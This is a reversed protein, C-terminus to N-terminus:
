VGPASHTGRTYVIDQTIYYNKFVQYWIIYYKLTCFLVRLEFHYATYYRSRFLSCPESNIRRKFPHHRQISVATLGSSSCFILLPAYLWYTVIRTRHRSLNASITRSYGDNLLLESNERCHHNFTNMITNNYHCITM